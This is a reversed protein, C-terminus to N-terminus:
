LNPRVNCLPDSCIFWARIPPSASSSAETCVAWQRVKVVAVPQIHLTQNLSRGSVEQVHVCEGPSVESALCRMAKQKRAKGLIIWRLRSGKRCCNWVVPHSLRLHHTTSCDSWVTQHHRNWTGKVNCSCLPQRSLLSFPCLGFRNPLHGPLNIPYFLM